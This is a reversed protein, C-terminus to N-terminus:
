AALSIQCVPRQPHRYQELGVLFMGAHLLFVRESESRMVAFLRLKHSPIM